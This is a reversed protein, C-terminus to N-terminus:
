EIWEFLYKEIYEIEFKKLFDLYEQKFTQKKHHEEQNLIYKCVNDIHSKSYSFAGFGEQWNFKGNVWHNDNIFKSSGAKIDRVLDSISINPKLGVLMHIHDPMAFIALLKQERKQVIGSIYKHLEERNQKAILNQRGKVAFVIQIYIQTYTNPM